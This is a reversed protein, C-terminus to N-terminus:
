NHRLINAMDYVLNKNPTKGIVSLVSLLRGDGRGATENLTERMDNKHAHEFSSTNQKNTTSSQANEIQRQTQGQGM